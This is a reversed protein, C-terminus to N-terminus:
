RVRAIRDVKTVENGGLTKMVFKYFYVGNAVQDGDLDRGDWDLSSRGAYVPGSGTWIKRGGLTFVTVDVSEVLGSLRYVFATSDTFPNPINVAYELEAEDANPLLSVTRYASEGERTSVAVQLEFGESPQETLWGFVTWNWDQVAGETGPVFEDVTLPVGDVLLQIEEASVPVPVSLEVRLRDGPIVIDGDSLDVFSTGQLRAFSAEYRVPFAVNRTRGAHDTASIVIDYDDAPVDLSTEFHVLARRDTQAYDPDPMVEYTSTDAPVGAVTVEVADLAVEDRFRVEITVDDSAASSRLDDDGSWPVGDVEVVDSRPPALDVTMTPDGLLVYTAVMGRRSTDNPSQNRSFVKGSDIMEGLLWRSSGDPGAPPSQFWHQFFPVLPLDNDPLWEYATSAIGAVAGRSRDLFLMRETMSDGRTFSEEDPSAFEAMHCGFGFFIFPKGENQLLASDHVLRADSDLWMEEHGAQARNAHSQIVWFLNGRDLKERLLEPVGIKDRADAATEPGDKAPFEIIDLIEGGTGVRCYQDECVTPPPDGIPVCRGLCAVSDLYAAVFFTDVVVDSFGGAQVARRAERCGYRFVSESRRPWDRNPDGRFQYPQDNDIRSSFEDDASLLIRNRWAQTDSYRDYAIIKEVLNPLQDDEGSLSGVPLRGVSADPYLDFDNGTGVLDDVFYHDCAVLQFGLDPSFANSFVTQTPVYNPASTNLVGAVDLSADGVLLVFSPPAERTRFSYRLFNRIAEPWVRGGNFQDYVDRVSVLEVDWGQTTRHDVWPQMGDLFDPHCIVVVDSSRPASIDVGSTKEIAKPPLLASIRGMALTREVGSDGLDLQVRAVRNSGSGSIQSAAIDLRVPTVPDTVDLLVLDTGGFGAFDWQRAGTLGDTDFDIRDFYAKPNRRYTWQFWDVYAGTRGSASNMYFDNGREGLQLGTLDTGEFHYEQAGMDRAVTLDPFEIAVSETLGIRVTALPQLRNALRYAQQVRLDFAVGSAYGPLDFHIPNSGPDTFWVYHDNMLHQVGEELPYQDEGLISWLIHYKEEEFRKTWECTSVSTLDNRNLTSSGVGMRAGDEDRVTLFYSNTRGSRREWPELEIRDFMMVGYFVITDGPGFEGDANADVVHIPTENTDMTADAERWFREEMVVREKPVTGLDWGAAVLSEYTIGYIDNADVDIRFESSGGGRRAQASSPLPEARPALRVFNSAEDWNLVSRAYRREWVEHDRPIRAAADRPEAAQPFRVRFTVEKAVLLGGRTPDWRVPHISVPVVRLHRMQGASGLEAWGVPSTRAFLEREALYQVDQLPIEGDPDSITVTPVPQPRRGPEFYSEVSVVELTPQAGEPIGILVGRVPLEPAGVEGGNAWGDILVEVDGNEPTPLYDPTPVTVRVLVEDQTSSLLEVPEAEARVDLGIAAMLLVLFATLPFKM